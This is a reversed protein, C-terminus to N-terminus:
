AVRRGRDFEVQRALGPKTEVLFDPQFAEVLGQVLQPASPGTGKILNLKIAGAGLDTYSYDQYRLPAKKPVPVL